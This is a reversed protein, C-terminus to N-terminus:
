MAVMATAYTGTANTTKASCMASWLFREEMMSLSRSSSGPRERVRRPSPTPEMAPAMKPPHGLVVYPSDTPQTAIVLFAETTEMRPAATSAMMTEKKVGKTIKREEM